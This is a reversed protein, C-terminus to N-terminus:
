IHLSGRDYIREITPFKNKLPSLTALDFMKEKRSEKGPSWYKNYAIQMHGYQNEAAIHKLAELSYDSFGRFIIMSIVAGAIMGISLLSRLRHRTINRIALKLRM